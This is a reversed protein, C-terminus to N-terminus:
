DLTLLLKYLAEELAEEYHFEKDRVFSLIEMKPTVVNFSSFYRGGAYNLHIVHVDRFWKMLLSQTPAYYENELLPAESERCRGEDDGHSLWVKPTKIDFGKKRALKATKLSIVQEQIM